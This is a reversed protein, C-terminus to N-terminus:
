GQGRQKLPMFEVRMGNAKAIVHLYWFLDAFVETNNDDQDTGYGSHALATKEPSSMMVVVKDGDQFEEDERFVDMLRAGIREFRSKPEYHVDPEGM